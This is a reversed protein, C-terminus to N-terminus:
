PKSEEIDKYQPGNNDDPNTLMCHEDVGILETNVNFAVKMEDRCNDTRPPGQIKFLEAEIVIDIGDEKCDLLGRTNSVLTFGVM